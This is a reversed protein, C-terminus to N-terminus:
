SGSLLKRIREYVVDRPYKQMFGAHVVVSKAGCISGIRASNMIRVKSAELTEGEASLNIYYAHTASLRIDLKEAADTFLVLQKRVM